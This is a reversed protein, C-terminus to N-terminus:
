SLLYYFDQHPPELPATEDPNVSNALHTDSSVKHRIKGSKVRIISRRICTYLFFYIYSKFVCINKQNSM